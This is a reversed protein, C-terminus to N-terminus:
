DGVGASRREFSGLHLDLQSAVDLLGNPQAGLPAQIFGHLKKVPGGFHVRFIGVEVALQANSKKEVFLPFASARFHQFGNAVIRGVGVGVVAQAIREFFEPVDFCGQIFVASRCVQLGIVGRVPLVVQFGEAFQCDFLRLLFLLPPTRAMEARM